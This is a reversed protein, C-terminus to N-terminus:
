SGTRREIKKLQEEIARSLEILGNAIQKTAEDNSQGKASEFYQRATPFVMLAEVLELIETRNRPTQNLHTKWRATPNETRRQWQREANLREIGCHTVGQPEM